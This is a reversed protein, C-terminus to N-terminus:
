NNKRARFDQPRGWGGGQMVIGAWYTVLPIMKMSLPKLGSQLPQGPKCLDEMRQEGMHEKLYSLLHLFLVILLVLNTM